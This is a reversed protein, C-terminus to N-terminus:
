RKTTNSYKTKLEPFKTNTITVWKDETETLNSFIYYDENKTNLIFYKMKYGTSSTNDVIELECVVHNKYWAFKNCWQETKDDLIGFHNAMRQGNPKSIYGFTGGNSHFTYGNDMKTKLIPADGCGIMLIISIYIIMFIGSIAVIIRKIKSEKHQNPTYRFYLELKSLDM